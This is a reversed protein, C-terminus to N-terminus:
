FHGGTPSIPSLGRLCKENRCLVQFGRKWSAFLSFWCMPDIPRFILCPSKSKPCGISRAMAKTDFFCCNFLPLYFFTTHICSPNESRNSCGMGVRAPSWSSLPYFVLFACVSLCVGLCDPHILFRMHPLLWPTSHCCSYHHHSTFPYGLQVSIM